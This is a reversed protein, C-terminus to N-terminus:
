SDKLPRENKGDEHRCIARYDCYQCPNNPESSPIPRADFRGHYVNNAMDILNTEVREDLAEFGAKNFLNKNKYPDGGQKLRYPAYNGGTNDLAKLVAVNNLLIGNMTYAPKLTEGPVATQPAPDSALYLIAAPHLDEDHSQLAKMYILMQMNLGDEVAAADFNQSGTKYDIIRVLDGEPTQLRDVRDVVGHVRMTGFETEIELPPVAGEGSGIPLELSVIEFDSHADADRLFILLQQTAEMVQKLIAEERVTLDPLNEEIFLAAHGEASHRLAEDTTTAFDARHEDIVKELIYHVLNGSELPTLEARQVPRVKILRDVYYNFPCKYYQEVQTASLSFDAGTLRRTVAGDEIVYAGDNEMQSLLVLRGGDTKQWRTGLASYLSAADAGDEKYLHSLHAFAAAPTATKAAFDVEIAPPNLTEVLTSVATSLMKQEGGMKQPASLYLAEEASTLARYLFMQELMVRNEFGGPMEIGSDILKERDTHTLLGSYGIQRPFVGECLGLVFTHKPGSLRMRDASTFVVCDLSQPVRGFDTAEVLLLFLEGVDAAPLTEDALLVTLKDLLEMALDWARRTREATEFEGQEDFGRAVRQTHVAAKFSDMLLYVDRIMADAPKNKSRARFKDLTPILQSRLAEAEKLQRELPESLRQTYGGPNKEFPERLEAATPRWTYLYNEFAAVQQESFGCLETKLLALIADSVLGQALINFAAEAFLVPASYRVTDPTDIFYPINYLSFAYRIAQQYDAIDRVVVAMDSYPVGSNALTYLRAAVLEAEHWEDDTQTFFLGDTDALPATETQAAYCGGVKKLIPRHARHVTTLTVDPLTPTGVEGALRKLRLATGRVPYFVDYGDHQGTLADACLAVTVQESWQILARLLAYEPATFGDFDDIFFHREGFDDAGVLGAAQELQDQPDIAVREIALQYLAYIAAIDALKPEDVQQAIEHLLDPTAGATKLEAITHAFLECYAADRRRHPFTQLQEGLQDLARRVFVVRDAEEILPMADAGASQLIRESLTRFSVVEVYGSKYEGLKQYILMEASSSFQEPVLFVSLQGRSARQEMQKICYSTKGTGSVGLVLQLM